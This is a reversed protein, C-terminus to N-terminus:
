STFSKMVNKLRKMSLKIKLKLSSLISSICVMLWNSKRRLFKKKIQLGIELPLIKSDINIFRRIKSNNRSKGSMLLKRPSPKELELFYLM